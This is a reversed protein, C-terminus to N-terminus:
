PNRDQPEDANELKPNNGAREHLDALREVAAALRSVQRVLEPLTHEILRQGMVTRHFDNM